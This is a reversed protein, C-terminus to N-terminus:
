IVKTPIGFISTVPRDVTYKDKGFLIDAALKFDNRVDISKSRKLARQAKNIANIVTINLGNTMEKDNIKIGIFISSGEREFPTATIKTPFTNERDTWDSSKYVIQEVTFKIPLNLPLKFENPIERGKYGLKKLLQFQSSNPLPADKVIGGFDFFKFNLGTITLHIQTNYLDPNLAADGPAINPLPGVYPIPKVSNVEIELNSIDFLFQDTSDVFVGSSQNLTNAILIMFDDWSSQEQPPLGKYGEDSALMTPNLFLARLLQITTYAGDINAGSGVILSSLINKTHLKSYEDWEPNGAVYDGTPQSASEPPVNGLTFGGNVFNLIPFKDTESIVGGIGTNSNLNIEKPPFQVQFTNFCSALVLPAILIPILGISFFAKKLMFKSM